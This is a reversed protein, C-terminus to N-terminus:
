LAAETTKHTLATYVRYCRLCRSAEDIIVQKETGQCVEDFTFKRAAPDLEEPNSRNETCQAPVLDPVLGQLSAAMEMLREEPTIEIPKQQLMQTIRQAANTGDRIADILITPGSSCDGGAFLYPAHSTSTHTHNDIAITGWSTLDIARGDLGEAFPSADVRQGIAPIFCDAALVYDSDPIAVPRRRGSDDPEGLAMKLMAIGTVANNDDLVLGTPNTLFHFIVGEEEAADIEEVDAPMENRTRRYVLHVEDAGLRVASRVCDMAVNGGGLVVVRGKVQMPKKSHLSENNILDNNMLCYVDYLFDLGIQYGSAVKDEHEIRAATGQNAGVAVYIAAYGQAKLQDLTFDKGLAVDYKINVGLDQVLHAEGYLVDKPLRYSPIGVNAMGGPTSEKEFVDVQYGLLRLHYACTLGSPGAGIIAIRQQLDTDPIHTDLWQKVVHDQSDAIFRKIDLIAVPSDVKERQCASECLKTCVRGCSGPFPYKELLTEFASEYKGDVVHGVYRPIDVHAPCAAICPATTTSHIQYADSDQPNNGMNKMNKLLVDQYHEIANYLPLLATQGLGCLSTQSVHKSLQSLEKLDLASGGDTLLTNLKRVALNLGARCPTCKGCSENATKKTHETLAVLLNIAPDLVFFGYPGALFRTTESQSFPQLAATNNPFTNGPITSFPNEWIGYM